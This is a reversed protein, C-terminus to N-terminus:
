HGRLVYGRESSLYWWCFGVLLIFAVTGGIFLGTNIKMGLIAVEKPVKVGIYGAKTPFGLELKDKTM